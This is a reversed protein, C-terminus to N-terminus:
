LRLTAAIENAVKKGHRIDDIDRPIPSREGSVCISLTKAKPRIEYTIYSYNPDEAQYAGGKLEFNLM